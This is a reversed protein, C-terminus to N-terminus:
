QEHHNIRSPLYLYSYKLKNKSISTTKHHVSACYFLLIITSKIQEQFSGSRRRDSSRGIITSHQFCSGPMTPYRLLDRTMSRNDAPSGVIATRHDYSIAERINIYFSYPSRIIGRIIPPNDVPARVIHM